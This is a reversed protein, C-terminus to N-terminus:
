GPLWGIIATATYGDVHFCNEHHTEGDGIDACFDSNQLEVTLSTSFDGMSGGEPTATLTLTGNVPIFSDDVVVELYPADNCLEHSLNTGFNILLRIDDSLEAINYTASIAEGSEHAAEALGQGRLELLISDDANHDFFLFDSCGGPDVLHDTADFSFVNGTDETATDNEKDGCAIFTSSIFILALFKM